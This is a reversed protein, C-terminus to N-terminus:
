KKFKAKYRRFKRLLHEPDDSSGRNLLYNEAIEFQSKRKSTHDINEIQLLMDLFRVDESKSKRGSYNGLGKTPKGYFSEEM